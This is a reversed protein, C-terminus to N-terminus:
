FKLPTHRFFTSRFDANGADTNDQATVVVDLQTNDTAKRLMRLPSLLNDKLRTRATTSQLIVATVDDQELNQDHYLSLKELLQPIIAVPTVSSRRCLIWLGQLGLQQGDCDVAEILADSFALIMDGTNLATKRQSYDAHDVVGLPTDAINGSQSDAEELIM